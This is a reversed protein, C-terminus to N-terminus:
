LRTKEVFQVQKNTLSAIRALSEVRIGQNELESRGPQFSKEIVIGIGVVSTGAQQAIDILGKAAQGNALFDDIILVTDDPKILDGSISITNKQKKTYSDVTTSILNDVLTLSQRKRAFILECGIVLSTMLAPAIGSSELTLVKTIPEGSFREAFEEGIEKMLQPNIAHNLFSDVKLVNDNIVIGETLITEYLRKM